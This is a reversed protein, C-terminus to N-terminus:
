EKDKSPIQFTIPLTYSVNLAKGKQMGPKVKPILNIVRETEAKLSENPARVKIAEVNGKANVTFMTMIKVAQGEMDDTALGTNFNEQVLKTINSSFCDRENDSGECGPYVPAKEIIAFPIEEIETVEQTPAPPPPPLIGSNTVEKIENTKSDKVYELVQNKKESKITKKEQANIQLSTFLMAVLLPLVLTYKWKTKPNSKSKQLMIIRNKLLSSKYFTNVFSFDKTKFTQNLLNQYYSQPTVTKLVEADAIYEHVSVIKKQYMWLLPNWWFIIRVLELAVLDYSHKQKVHVLEHQIIIETEKEEIADGIYLTNFFSFADQTNPIKALNYASYKELDAKAKIKYLSFMRIAFWIGSVVSGIIWLLHWWSFSIIKAQQLEQRSGLVIEPLQLSVIQVQESLKPWITLPIIFSLVLSSLLFFRHFSYHTDHKFLLEYLLVFLIQYVLVQIFYLM